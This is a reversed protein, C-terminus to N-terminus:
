RHRAHREPLACLRFLGPGEALLAWGLAWAAVSFMAEGFEAPAVPHPSPRSASLSLTWLALACAALLLVGGLRFGLEIRWGCGGTELRRLLAPM